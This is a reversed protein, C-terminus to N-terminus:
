RMGYLVFIVKAVESIQETFNTDMKTNSQLAELLKGELQKANCKPKSCVHEESENQKPINEVKSNSNAKPPSSNNKKHKESKSPLNCKNPEKKNQAPSPIEEKVTKKSDEGKQPSVNEQKKKTVPSNSKSSINEEAPKPFVDKACTNGSKSSGEAKLEGTALTALEANEQELIINGEAAVKPM